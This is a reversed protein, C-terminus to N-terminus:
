KAIGYVIPTIVQGLTYSAGMRQDIAQDDADFISVTVEYGTPFGAEGPDTQKVNFYQVNRSLVIPAQPYDYVCPAAVPEVTEQLTGTTAGTPIDASITVDNYCPVPYGNPSPLAQPTLGAVQYFELVPGPTALPQIVAAPPTPYDTIDVSMQRAVGSVKAIALRAQQESSLHSELFMHQYIVSKFEFAAVTMIITMVAMAVMMEVLTFARASRSERAMSM